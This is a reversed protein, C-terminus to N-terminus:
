FKKLISHFVRLGIIETLSIMKLSWNPKIPMIKKSRVRDALDVKFLLDLGVDIYTKHGSKRGFTYVM